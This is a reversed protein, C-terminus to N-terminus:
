LSTHKMLAFSRSDLNLIINYKKKLEIKFKEQAKKNAKRNVPRPEQFTFNIKKLINRIQRVKLKVNFKKLIIYQVLKTIWVTYPIKQEEPSKELINELEKEQIKNLKAPKGPQKLDYVGGLGRTEFRRLWDRITMKPKQLSAAIDDLTKYEKRQIAALFRLKSKANKEQKYLRKLEEVSVDSLFANGKKLWTMFIM